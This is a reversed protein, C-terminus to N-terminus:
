LKEKAKAVADGIVKSAERETTAVADASKVKFWVKIKDSFYVGAVLAAVVLAAEGFLM